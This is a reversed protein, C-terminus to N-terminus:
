EATPEPFPLTVGGDEAAPFQTSHKPQAIRTSIVPTNAGDAEPMLSVMDTIDIMGIPAGREDVIPLESIKRNSMLDIAESLMSGSPLTAPQRTMIQSIPQDLENERTSEFLRALDSDTFIGTLRGSSDVLMVAGSRRGSRRHEIFVRRASLDESAVRCQGLPRLQDDVRSLKRGLSGGPHFRAFDERRFGRMQSVVLALADGVALMATTSTSPALRLPCAEDVVGLDITTKAARALTSHAKATIAIIQTGLSLLSPLLLTVESTEGSQSLMLIVDGSGIRGLDGHVAEAPHLFHSRTGTSSLTAAIKQGILGAKGMGCAIVSGRCHFLLGVADCFSDGLRKSLGILAQGETEVIERALRLQAFRNSLVETSIAQDM